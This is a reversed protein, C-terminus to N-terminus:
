GTVDNIQNVLQKIDNLSWKDVTADGDINGNATATFSGSVGAAPVAAMSAPGTAQEPQITGGTTSSGALTAFL